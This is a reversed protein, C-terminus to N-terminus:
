RLTKVLYENGSLQMPMVQLSSRKIPVMLKSLYGGIQAKDYQYGDPQISLLGMKAELINTRVANYDEAAIMAYKATMTYKILLHVLEVGTVSKASRITGEFVILRTDERMGVALADLIKPSFKMEPVATKTVTGNNLSPM